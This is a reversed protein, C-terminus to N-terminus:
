IINTKQLAKEVFYGRSLKEKFEKVSAFMTDYEEQSISNIKNELERLNEVAIGLKNETIFKAMASQSWVVVPIGCRIYFSIKHPNNIKLYEGWAGTCEDISDGDWVLGWSGQITSVLQSSPVTGKYIIHQFKSFDIEKCWGYALVKSHQLVEDFEYLYKSRRNNYSSVIVIDGNHNTNPESSSIYDFIGLCIVPRNINRDTLWNCMTDNHAIIYDTLSLKKIEGEETLKKRRFSGLDHILTITKAGRKKAMVCIYPYFKKFPYQVLLVDGKGVKFPLLMMTIVKAFFTKIKGKANPLIAINKFGLQNCVIDSIDNKAKNTSYFHIIKNM